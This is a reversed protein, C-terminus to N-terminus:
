ERAAERVKEQADAQADAQAGERTGDPRKDPAAFRGLFKENGPTRPLLAFGDEDGFTQGTELQAFFEYVEAWRVRKDAGEVWGWEARPRAAFMRRSVFVDGGGDWAELARRAVDERWAPLQPMGLPLFSHVRLANHHNVPNFPFDRVFNELEDTGVLVISQPRILTRLEGVRRLTAEERRGLAGERMAAFNTVTMALIFILTVAQGAGLARRAALSCALALFLFPFWPLYREMVAGNWSLAFGIAPLGGLALLCLVRRGFATRALNVLVAALFLYFLALKWLSLRFLDALSVPSYPDQLLYRKLTVNDSGMNIFSRALGFVVQPVGGAQELHHSAAVVWERFGGVSRIGIGVAVAIFLAGTLLGFAVAACISLRWLQPRRWGYLVLPACVTAPVAWLYPVWLGVSLTLALGALTGPLWPRGAPEGGERVLLYLGLLLFALGPAYSCGTQTYNLFAQAFVFAVTTVRVVWARDCVRVLLLHMLVACALGALWNLAVLAYVSAPNLDSGVSLRALPRLLPFTAVGLPRWLLHGFDWFSYNGTSEWLQYGKGGAVNAVMAAYFSTDGMYFADTLWTAAAYIVVPVVLHLWSWEAVGAGRAGHAGSPSVDAGAGAGSLSVDAGAGAADAGAGAADARGHARAEINPTRTM